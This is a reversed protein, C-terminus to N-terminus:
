EGPGVLEQKYWEALGRTSGRIIQNALATYLRAAIYDREEDILDQQAYKILTGIDKPSGDLNGEEALRQRAKAWRAPTALEDILKAVIDSKKTDGGPNAAKKHKEKFQESVFKALILKGERDFIEHQKVVFGEIKHGGLVSDTQLLEECTRRSLAEPHGAGDRKWWMLVPVSEVGILKATLARFDPDVFSGPKAEIDWLVFNGLPARGYEIVNHKPGRFAEGRYVWGPVLYEKVSEFHAVTAAFMGATEPYVEARKSRFRLVGDEGLQVSFQSGDVKEEIWVTQAQYIDQTKKHGLQLIKSYSSISM